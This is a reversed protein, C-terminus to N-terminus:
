VRNQEFVPYITSFVDSIYEYKAHFTAEIVSIKTYLVSIQCGQGPDCSGFEIQFNVELCSKLFQIMKIGINDESRRKEAEFYM